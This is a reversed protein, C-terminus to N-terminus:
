KRAYHLIKRCVICLYNAQSTVNISHLKVLQLGLPPKIYFLARPISYHLDKVSPIAVAEGYCTQEGRPRKDSM